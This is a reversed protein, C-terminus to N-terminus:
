RLADRGNGIVYGFYQLCWRGAATDLTHAGGGANGAARRM